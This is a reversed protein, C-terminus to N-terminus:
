DKQNKFILTKPRVNTKTMSKLKKDKFDFVVEESSLQKDTQNVSANGKFIIKEPKDTEKNRILLAEKSEGTTEQYIVTVKNTNSKAIVERTNSDIILEDTNIIVPDQSEKPKEKEPWILTKVNGIAKTNQTTLDFIVEKSSTLNTPQTINVANSLGYFIALYPKENKYIIQGQDSSVTTDKYNTMLNGSAKADEGTWKLEQFDSSITILNNKKDKLRSLVKGEAVITKEEVSITIQNAELARDKLSIKSTGTFIVKEAKGNRSEVTAHPGEITADKYSIVVNGKITIKEKESELSDAHKIEFDEGYSKYSFSITLVISLAIYGIKKM